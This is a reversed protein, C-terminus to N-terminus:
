YVWVSVTAGAGSPFTLVLAGTPATQDAPLAYPQGCNANSAALWFGRPRRGLGHPVVLKLTAPVVQREILNGDLVATQLVPEVADAVTHMYRNLEDDNANFDVLNKRPLM